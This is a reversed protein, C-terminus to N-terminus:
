EPAGIVGDARLREIEDAGFGADGLVSRLDANVKPAPPMFGVPRGDFQVPGTVVPFHEVDCTVYGVYENALVQPDHLTEECSQVAAWPGEMGEFARRWHELTQAAFVEDLVEVCERVNQNRAKADAFRPDVEIDPRGIRACFDHWYRDPEIFVLYLWRGDKTRYSNTLAGHTSPTTRGPSHLIESGYHAAGLNPALMWLATSLLSVDVVSPEGTRERKLLAAAIGAALNFGGQLDILGPPMAPPEDAGFAMLQHALSPRAWGASIDYGGLASEPGRPGQGTGKAYIISHNVQRLHEVDIKLRNRAPELFNTLFVDSAAALRYLVERGGDTRVDLAFSRKGHNPLQTMVQSAPDDWSPTFLIARQPDGSPQEVKIVDAGWEACIAGASPVMTWTSLELVRFGSLVDYM